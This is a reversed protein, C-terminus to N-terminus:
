NKRSTWPNFSVTVGLKKRIQESHEKWETGQRGSGGTGEDTDDRHAVLCLIAGTFRLVVLPVKKITVVGDVVGTFVERVSGPAIEDLHLNAFWGVM